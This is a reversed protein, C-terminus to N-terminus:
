IDNLFYRQRVDKDTASQIRPFESRATDFISVRAIPVATEALPSHALAVVCVDWVDRAARDEAKEPLLRLASFDFTLKVNADCLGRCNRTTASACFSVSLL